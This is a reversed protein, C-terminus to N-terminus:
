GYHSEGGSPGDLEIEGIVAVAALAVQHTEDLRLTKNLTAIETM